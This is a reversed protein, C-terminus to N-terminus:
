NIKKELVEILLNNVNNLLTLQEIRKDKLELLEKQAKVLEELSATLVQNEYALGKAFVGKILTGEDSTLGTKELMASLLGRISYNGSNYLVFEWECYNDSIKITHTM